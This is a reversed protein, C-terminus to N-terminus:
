GTYTREPHERDLEALEAEGLAPTKDGVIAQPALKHLKRRSKRSYRLWNNVEFGFTMGPM